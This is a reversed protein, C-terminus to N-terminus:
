ATSLWKRMVVRKDRESELGAEQEFQHRLQADWESEPVVAFGLRSYFPANWPLDRYTTLTIEGYGNSRSWAEVAGVLESGVGRRGHEPLVDLEALHVRVGDVVVRSFGVPTDDPGLAVWLTGDRQADLFVSELTVNDLLTAPVYDGFLSAALREIGPLSPAHEASAPVVRYSSQM